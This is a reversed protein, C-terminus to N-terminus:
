TEVKMFLELSCLLLLLRVDKLQGCDYRHWLGEANLPPLVERTDLDCLNERLLDRFDRREHAARAYDIYNVEPNPVQSGVLRKWLRRRVSRIRVRMPREALPLGLNNTCPIAALRPYADKLIKRYASQRVRLHRPLSLIFAIWDTQLFPTQYRYGTMLVAPKIFCEQRIAFDLQDDLSVVEPLALPAQPLMSMPDSVQDLADSYVAKNWSSFVNLAESWSRSMQIPLHQGALAEGMFGSWYTASTHFVLRSQHYLFADFIPVPRECQSAFDVLDATRWRIESLDVLEHRVGTERAVLRAFEYDWSGPVGVTVAALDSASMRTLLAGLVARSDFGGSLPVVHPGDSTEGIAQDIADQLATAGGQVVDRPSRHAPKRTKLASSVRGDLLSSPNPLYGFHLFSPIEHELMVPM